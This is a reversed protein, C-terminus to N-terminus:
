RRMEQNKVDFYLIHNSKINIMGPKLIATKGAKMDVGNPWLVEGFRM